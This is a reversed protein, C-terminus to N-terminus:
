SVSPKDPRRAPHPDHDLVRHASLTEFTSSDLILMLSAMSM